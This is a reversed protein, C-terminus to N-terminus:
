ETSGSWEYGCKPCCYDTAIDDGYEPFDEPAVVAEAQSSAILDQIEIPHFMKEIDLGKSMNALLREGDWQLRVEGSRNDAVRYGQAQPHEINDWDTRKVVVLQNGTTEIEIVETIGKEFAKELTGNGAAIVNDDTSVVSRGLGYQEISHDLMYDGRETGKNPNNPDPTYESIDRVRVVPQEPPQETPPKGGAKAAPKKAM